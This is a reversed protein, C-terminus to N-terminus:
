ESPRLVEEIFSDDERVFATGPLSDLYLTITPDYNAITNVYFIGLRAPDNVYDDTEDGAFFRWGSDITDRPAERYMYGVPKGDVV